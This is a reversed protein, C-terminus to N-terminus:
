EMRRPRDGRGNRDSLKEDGINTKLSFRLFFFFFENINLLNRTGGDSDCKFATRRMYVVQVRTIRIKISFIYWPFGNFPRQTLCTTSSSIRESPPRSYLM